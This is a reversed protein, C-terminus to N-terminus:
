HKKLLSYGAAEDDAIDLQKCFAPNAYSLFDDESIAAFGIKSQQVSQEFM